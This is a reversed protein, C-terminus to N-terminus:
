SNRACPPTQWFESPWKCFRGQDGCRDSQQEGAVLWNRRGASQDNERSACRTYESELRNAKSTCVHPLIDRSIHAYMGYTKQTVDGKEALAPLIKQTAPKPVAGKLNASIHEPDHDHWVPQVTHIRGFRVCGNSIILSKSKQKWILILYLYRTTM